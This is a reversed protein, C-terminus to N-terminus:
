GDKRLFRIIALCGFAPHWRFCCSRFCCRFRISQSKRNKELCLVMFIRGCYAATLFSGLQMGAFLLWELSNGSIWPQPFLAEKSIFGSTFPLGALAALLIALSWKGLPSSNLIGSLNFYSDTENESVGKESLSKMLWGCFLFLGAKYFAHSVLHLLSSEAKGLGIAAMMLGLQAMTSFALTSKLHSSGLAALNGALLSILGIIALSEMVSAPMFPALRSMLWVGAAVMTASHLLASVSAPGAMARKLWVSFPFQASKIFASIALFYCLIQGTPSSLFVNAGDPFVMNVSVPFFLGFSVLLGIGTLLFFDGAKNILVVRLASDAAAPKGYWFQVLLWSLIGVLEWFLFLSFLSASLFLGCMALQFLGILFHFYGQSDEKKLYSLSYLQILFSLLSVLLALGLRLHDFQFRIELSFRDSAQLFPLTIESSQSTGSLLFVLLATLPLFAPLLFIFRARRPFILWFLLSLFIAVPYSGPLFAPHMMEFVPM